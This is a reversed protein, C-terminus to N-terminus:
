LAKYAKSLKFTKLTKHIGIDKLYKMFEKPLPSPGVWVSKQVMVYDFKKLHFRLWEREAKKKEPVDFMVILDKPTNQKYNASFQKLSDLKKDVYKRGARTIYFGSTNGDILGRRKLSYVSTKLSTKKCTNFKPLGFLNVRSGKYGLSHTALEELIQLVLTKNGGSDKM